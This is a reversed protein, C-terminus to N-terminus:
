SIVEITERKNCDGGSPEYFDHNNILKNKVLIQSTDCIELGETAAGTDYVNLVVPPETTTTTTPQSTVPPPLPTITIPVTTPSPSPPPTPTPVFNNLHVEPSPSRPPTNGRPSSELHVDEGENSKPQEQDSSVYDSHSSSTPKPKKAMKKIKRKKHVSSPGKEAKRKKPSTAQSSHREADKKQNPKKEKKAPKDVVELASQMEPTLQMPGTPTLKRYDAM